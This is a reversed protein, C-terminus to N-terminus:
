PASGPDRRAVLRESVAALPAWRERGRRVVAFARLTAAPHHLPLIRVGTAAPQDAPLIGVGLGAVILEQVLELSDARHAVIPEFGAISAITRVVQEDATNRSNVIWDEGAYRALVDPSHTARAPARTGRAPVGLAWPVTWLPTVTYLDDFSMPALDYDYVLALDVDDDALMAFAEFPEHERIRLRVHPHTDALTTAIPVLDARIASAFGAVRVTGRPEAHPDLDAKAAEVAALITVAHDALRRGAPTLRVRRGDRETLPTGAERALVALQESVTSTTYGLEEAVAGMSGRRSLELLLQLRRLEMHRDNNAYGSRITWVDLTSV